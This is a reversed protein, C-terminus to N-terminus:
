IEISLDGPLQMGQKLDKLLGKVEKLAGAYDNAASKSGMTSRQTKRQRKPKKTGKKDM